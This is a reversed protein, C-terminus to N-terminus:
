AATTLLLPPVKWIYVGAAVLQEGQQQEQQAQRRRHAASTAGRRGPEDVYGRAVGAM